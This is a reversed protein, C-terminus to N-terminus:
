QFPRGRWTQTLINLQRVEEQLSPSITLPHDWGRIQHLQVFHCMQDTFARLFPMAMLFSRLAGLIAAMKRCSMVQHTLLKGLEKRIAKIKQPPVSLCGRSFDITFGLHDLAQSPELISKGRNVVMGAEELTQLMFALDRQVGPTHNIVLIDDLYIFCLIGRRRWLRSFTKMVMMWIQPLTSLGFAAGQFQYYSQGVKLVLYERLSPSLGM